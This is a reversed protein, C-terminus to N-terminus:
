RPVSEEPKLELEVKPFFIMMEEGSLASIFNKSSRAIYFIIFKFNNLNYGIFYIDTGGFMKKEHDGDLHKKPAKM